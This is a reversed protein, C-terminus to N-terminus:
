SDRMPGEAPAPISLIQCIKAIVRSAPLTDLCESHSKQHRDCGELHCPVCEGQGQLLYVNNVDQSGKRPFPNEGGDFEIPWPAWKVPNTPGFLAIVPVGTAAAMHTIGTDPGLFLCAGRIIGALEALSITGALNVTDSPLRSQIGRLYELEEESSGASLVLHIKHDALFRGVAAWGAVTWRKYVWQPYMHLVAYRPKEPNAPLYSSQTQSRPPILIPSPSIGILRALKLHQLVTHTNLDDFETWHQMFFRKWWGASSRPPVTGVRIPAALLSYFFPRDGTQTVVATDYRRFLRSLLRMSERFGAGQRTQIISDIDPNGELMAATNEFVLVDLLSNPYAIRLSHILPTVLLVDGLYRMVIILIREPANQLAEPQKM